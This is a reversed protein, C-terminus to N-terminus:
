MTQLRFHISINVFPICRFRSKGFIPVTSTIDQNQSRLISKRTYIIIEKSPPLMNELFHKFGFRDYFTQFDTLLHFKKDAFINKFPIKRYYFLM